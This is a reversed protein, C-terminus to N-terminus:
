WLAATPSGSRAQQGGRGRSAGGGATPLVARAPSAVALLLVALALRRM